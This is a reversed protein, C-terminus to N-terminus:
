QESGKQHQEQLHQAIMPKWVDRDSLDSRENLFPQPEGQQRELEQLKELITKPKKPQQLRDSILQKILDETTTQQQSSLRNLERIMEEDLSLQITQM